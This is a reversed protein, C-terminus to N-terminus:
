AVVENVPLLDTDRLKIVRFRAIRQGPQVRLHLARLTMRISGVTFRLIDPNGEVLARVAVRIRVAATERLAALGTVGGASPFLNRHLTYVLVEVVGLRLKRQQSLVDTDVARLAMGTSIELLGKGELLAHIAMPVRVVALEGLAGIGALASRAVVHLSPLGRQERGLFMRQARIRQLARVRSQFARLAMNRFSLVRQEFHLELAASITMAIAVGILERYRRIEVSAVAAVIQFRVLGGGESQGLVLFRMEHKGAPVHRYRTGVAVLLRRFKLRLSHDIVPLIQVAGTTMGIRVFSLELFAHELRTGITRWGPALGAM